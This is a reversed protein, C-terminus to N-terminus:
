NHSKSQGYGYRYGYGYTGYIGHVEDTANLVLALNNYRRTEYIDRLVSLDSKEFMGSRMVFVTLDIFPNLLRADAVIEVPPCDFIVYDYRDRLEEVLRELTPSYLLETPNPPKIGEPLIDFGEIGNVDRVILDDLNQNRGVLYDTVGKAPSGVNLSVTGKRLDLDVLCTRSGKLAYIAATNLSVFTKGSGANLSVVMITKGRNSAERRQGMAGMFDINTRIMRFSENIMGGSHPKVMVERTTRGSADARRGSRLLPLRFRRSRGCMPVEGLFPMPLDEIDKRSRVKTNISERFYIVCCPIILGMLFAVTLIIQTKPSTPSDPGFPETVMRTNYSDFAQQLENEERRQLLFVYLEEMVKQKREENMLYKAQGPASALQEQTKRDNTSIAEYRKGLTELAADVSTLIAARANLIAETKQQILPNEEPLSQLKANREGVQTNYAIIMQQVDTGAINATAPLMRSIDNSALESKIYRGIAIEQTLENLARQNESSQTLYLSAMANMDLMKHSSKYESINSEVNGLEDEIARLREDIFSSTALAIKNKDNVWNRNYADVVGKLIDDAKKAVPCAITLTVVNGVDKPSESKLTEAYKNACAKVTTYSYYVESQPGIKKVPNDMYPTAVVIFTGVPTVAPEGFSVSVPEGDVKQGGLKFKSLTVGSKDGSITIKFSYAKTRDTLSDIAEVLVPSNNYYEAKRLLKPYKYVENLNLDMVVQTMIVSSNMVFMENLIDTPVADLGNLSLQTPLNQSSDDKLLVECSRTYMPTASLLYLVGLGVTIIVSVLFWVWKARMIRFLEIFSVGQDEFDEGREARFKNKEEM